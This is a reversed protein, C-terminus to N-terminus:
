LSYFLMLSHHSVSSGDIEVLIPLLLQVVQELLVPETKLLELRRDEEPSATKTETSYNEFDVLVYKPAVSVNMLCMELWGFLM